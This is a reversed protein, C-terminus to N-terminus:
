YSDIDRHLLRVKIVIVLIQNEAHVITKIVVSDYIYIYIYSSLCFLILADQIHFKNLVLGVALMASCILSM